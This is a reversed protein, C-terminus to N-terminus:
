LRRSRETLERPVPMWLGGREAVAVRGQWGLETCLRTRLADPDRLDEWRIRIVTWGDRGLAEQRRLQEHLAERVERETRGMKGMGDFEIVIRLGLIAIDVFYRSGEVHIEVQTLPLEPAITLLIWLLACEGISECAPDALEIIRRARRRGKAGKRTGLMALLHRRLREARQRSERIRFRDFGVLQRMIMSVAVFAELPHRRCAFDLATEELSATWVGHVMVPASREQSVRMQRATVPPVHIGEVHVGRLELPHYRGPCIFTVDPNDLWGNVGWALLASYLTFVVTRRCQDATGLIRAEAVRRRVDWPKPQEPLEREFIGVGRRIRVPANTGSGPRVRSISGTSELHIVDVPTIEM